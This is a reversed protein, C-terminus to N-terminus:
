RCPVGTRAKCDPGPVPKDMAIVTWGDASQLAVRVPRGDLEIAGAGAPGSIGLRSRIADLTLGRIIAPQGPTLTGDSDSVIRGRDNIVIVHMAHGLGHLLAREYTSLDQGVVVVLDDAGESDTRTTWHIMDGYIAGSINGPDQALADRAAREPGPGKATAGSEALRRGDRWLIRIHVLGYRAQMAKMSSVIRSKVRGAENTTAASLYAHLLRGNAIAATSRRAKSRVLTVAALKERAIDEISAGPAAATAPTVAALAAGLASALIIVAGRM